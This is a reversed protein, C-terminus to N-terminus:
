PTSVLRVGWLSRDGKRIFSIFQERPAVAFEAIDAQEGGDSSGPVVLVTTKNNSVNFSMLADGATATGLHWLDLYSPAVYTPPAACYITTTALASWLCREPSPDFSLATSLGSKTNFAYTARADGANTQYLVRALARDGNITLGQAALLTSVAGSKADISFAIGSVGAGSASQVLLTGPAPWSVLTQALPLSFLKKPNSGDAGAVYGDTGNATRLLYAAGTGDPSVALDAINSPLFQIRVPPTTSGVPPLALHATKIIGADIYQIIAGRGGESWLVRDIGPITTNSVAKAVAGPSDLVLDFIHGNDQQVFRVVTTTPRTTDILTAGAVPGNTIKFIKQNTTDSQVAQSGNQDTSPSVGTSSRVDSTGFQSNNTSTTPTTSAPSKFFVFWIGVGFLLTLLIGAIYLYIPKM